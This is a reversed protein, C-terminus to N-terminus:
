CVRNVRSGKKGRLTGTAAGSVIAEDSADGRLLADPAIWPDSAETCAATMSLSRERM